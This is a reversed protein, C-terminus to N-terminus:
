QLGDEGPQRSSRCPYYLNRHLTLMQETDTQIMFRRNMSVAECTVLGLGLTADETEAIRNFMTDDGIPVVHLLNPMMGEEIFKADSRLFV